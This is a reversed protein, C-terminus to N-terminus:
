SESLLTDLHNKLVIAFNELSFRSVRQHLKQVEFPHAKIQHIASVFGDVDCPNDVLLAVDKLNESLASTNSSVVQTGCAMAELPPYGFGELLSTYVLADALNYLERIDSLQLQYYHQVNLINNDFLFKDIWPSLEGIRVFRADPMAQAILLFTEINKRPEDLCITLYVSDNAQFGWKSKLKQHVFQDLNELEHLKKSDPLSDNLIPFFDETHIVCGVIVESKEFNFHQHTENKSYNSNYLFSDAVLIPNIFFRNILKYKLSTPYLTEAFMDHIMVTTKVQPFAQHISQIIFGLEPRIAIVLDPKFDKVIRKVGHPYIFFGFIFKPSYVEFGKLSQGKKFYEPSTLYCTSVEYEGDIAQVYSAAIRGFSTFPSKDLLILVKKKPTQM